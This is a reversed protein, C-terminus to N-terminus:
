GSSTAGALRKPWQGQSSLDSRGATDARNVSGFAFLHCVM